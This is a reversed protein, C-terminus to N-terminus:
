EQMFHRKTAFLVASSPNIAIAFSCTGHREINQILNVHAPNHSVFGPLHLRTQEIVAMTVRHCIESNEFDTLDSDAALHALGLVAAEKVELPYRSFYSHVMSALIEDVEVSSESQSLRAYSRLIQRPEEYCILLHLM